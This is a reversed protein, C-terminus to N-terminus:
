GAFVVILAVPPVPGYVNATVVPWNGAPKVSVPAVMLPVGVLVVERVNVMVAVSAFPHVPVRSKVTVGIQLVFRAM